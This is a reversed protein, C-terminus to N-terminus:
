ELVEVKGVDMLWGATQATQTAGWVKIKKGIFQSLDVTSSTMYVNQSDGGPRVLHYQGEGEIGGEELKGEATDPYAKTNSAGYTKGKEVSSVKPLPILKKGPGASIQTLGYGTGIGLVAVVLLVALAKTPFSSSKKTETFSHMIPANPKSGPSPTTSSTAATNNEMAYTDEDLYPTLDHQTNCIKSNKAVRSLSAPKSYLEIARNM